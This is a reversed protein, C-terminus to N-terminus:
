FSYKLAFYLLKQYEIIVERLYKKKKWWDNSRFDSFKSPLMMIKVDDKGFVKKFTLLARRAHMPSTVIILTRYGQKLAIEKVIKAEEFTSDVFNDSAICDSRPVGLGELMMILLDRSEPYHVKKEELVAYGNPLEERGVFIKTALGMGYLEAAALGREVPRGMMCVILDAKKLSHGVVLYNGFSTLIPARYYSILIYAIFVLFIVWKLIRPRTVKRGQPEIPRKDVFVETQRREEAENEQAEGTPDKEGIWNSLDRSDADNESSKNLRSWVKKM